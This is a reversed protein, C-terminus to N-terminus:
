KIKYYLDKMMKLTLSSPRSSKFLTKVVKGEDVTIEYTGDDIIDGIGLFNSALQEFVKKM